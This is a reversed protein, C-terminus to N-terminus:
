TSIALLSMTLLPVLSASRSIFCGSNDCFDRQGSALLGFDLSQDQLIKTVLDELFFLTLFLVQVFFTTMSSLSTSFNAFAAIVLRIDSLKGRLGFSFVSRPLFDPLFGRTSSM